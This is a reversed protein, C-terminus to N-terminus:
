PNIIHTNILHISNILILKKQTNSEKKPAFSDCERSPSIGFDFRYHRGDSKRCKACPTKIKTM